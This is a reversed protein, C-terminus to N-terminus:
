PTIPYWMHCNLEERM